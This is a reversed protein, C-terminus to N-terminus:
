RNRLTSRCLEYRQRELDSRAERLAACITEACGHIGRYHNTSADRLTGGETNPLYVGVNSQHQRQTAQFVNFPGCVEVRLFIPAPTVRVM